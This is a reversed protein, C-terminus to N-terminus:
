GAAINGAILGVVDFIPSVWALGYGPLDLQGVKAVVDLLRSSEDKKCVILVVEKEPVIALGLLGLRERVGTGRAFMTTAGGAGADIAAKVIRDARGRQVIVTILRLEEVKFPAQPETHDQGNM